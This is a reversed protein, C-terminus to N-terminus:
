FTHHFSIDSEQTFFNAGLIGSASISLEEILVQFKIPKDFFRIETSGTTTLSDKTIGKITM